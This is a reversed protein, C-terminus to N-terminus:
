RTCTAGAKTQGHMHDVGAPKAVLLYQQNVFYGLVLIVAGPAEPFHLVADKLRDYVPFPIIKPKIALVEGTLQRNLREPVFHDTAEVEIVVTYVLYLLMGVKVKEVALHLVEEGFFFRANDYVVLGNM